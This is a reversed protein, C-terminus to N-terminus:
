GEDNKKGKDEELIKLIKKLLIVDFSFGHATKLITLEEKRRSSLFDKDAFGEILSKMKKTYSKFTDSEFLENEVKQYKQFIETSVFEELLDIQKRTLEAEDMNLLLEVLDKPRIVKVEPPKISMAEKVKCLLATRRLDYNKDIKDM